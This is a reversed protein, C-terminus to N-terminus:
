RLFNTAAAIAAAQPDARPATRQPECRQCARFGEAEAAAPNPYSRVNKRDPRRSPCSPKCYIGTSKVAYVFQGDASGDRALVQQWAKGAFVSPVMAKNKKGMDEYGVAAVAWTTTAM